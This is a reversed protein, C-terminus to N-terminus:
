TSVPLSVTFPTTSNGLNPDLSYSLSFVLHDHASMVRVISVTHCTGVHEEQQSKDTQSM